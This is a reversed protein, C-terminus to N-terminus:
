NPKFAPCMELFVDLSLRQQLSANLAPLAAMATPFSEAFTSKTFGLCSNVVSVFVIRGCASFESTGRPPNGFVHNSRGGFGVEGGPCFSEALYEAYVRAVGESQQARGPYKADSLDGLAIEARGFNRGENFRYAEVCSPDKVFVPISEGNEVVQKEILGICQTPQYPPTSALASITMCFGLVTPFLLYKM